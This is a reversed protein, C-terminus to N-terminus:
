IPLVEKKVARKLNFKSFEGIIMGSVICLGGIAKILMFQEGGLTWAFMAAFVPEMTFILGVKFPESNKQAVMQIYFATLTPFIALFIIIWWGNMSTVAMPYGMIWSITFSILAVMWFQHFALLITDANAKVYKDTVILHGSYAMAAILTLGDGLNFGEVGGTLLWMGFLATFASTIHLVNPKRKKFIFMFVPIFIIFLGTIFGSNSATTYVLGTTQTLYLLSIFFSLFFGEKLHRLKNKRRMVWPLLAIAAILFRIAVMSIPHVSDLAAKTLIFTSGWIAACYFLGIESLIKNKKM